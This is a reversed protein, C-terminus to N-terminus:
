DRRTPFGFVLDRLFRGEPGKKTFEYLDVAKQRLLVIGAENVLGEREVIELLGLFRKRWAGFVEMRGMVGEGMPKDAYPLYSVAWLWTEVLKLAVAQRHAIRDEESVWNTFPSTFSWQRIKEKTSTALAAQGAADQLSKLDPGKKLQTMLPIALQGLNYRFYELYFDGSLEHYPLAKLSGGVRLIEWFTFFRRHRLAEERLREKERPRVRRLAPVTRTKSTLLGTKPDVVRYTTPIEEFLDQRDKALVFLGRWLRGIGLGCQDKEFNFRYPAENRGIILLERMKEAWKRRLKPEGVVVREGTAEDIITPEELGLRELVEKRAEPHDPDWEDGEPFFVFATPIGIAAGGLKLRHVTPWMADDRTSHPGVLNHRKVDTVEWTLSCAEHELALQAAKRDGLLEGICAVLHQRAELQCVADKMSPATIPLSNAIWRFYPKWGPDDEVGPEKALLRKYFEDRTKAEWDSEGRAQYKAAIDALGVEWRANGLAEFIQFAEDVRANAEPNNPSEPFMEDHFAVFAWHDPPLDVPDEKRTVGGAQVELGYALIEWAGKSAFYQHSRDFFDCRVNVARKLRDKLNWRERGFVQVEQGIDDPMAEISQLLQQRREHKRGLYTPEPTAELAAIEEFVRKIWWEPSREKEPPARLLGEGPPPPEPPPSPPAEEEEDRLTEELAGCVAEFVRHEKDAKDIEDDFKKGKLLGKGKLYRLHGKIEKRWLRADKRIERLEALDLDEDRRAEVLRLISDFPPGLTAGSVVLSESTLTFVDIDAEEILMIGVLRNLNGKLDDLAQKMEPARMTEARKELQKFYRVWFAMLWADVNRPNEGAHEKYSERVAKFFEQILRQEHSDRLPRLNVGRLLELVVDMDEPLRSSAEGAYEDPPVWEEAESEPPKEDEPPPEGDEPPGAPLAGDTVETFEGEVVEEEKPKKPPGEKSEEEVVTWGGSEPDGERGSALLPLGHREESM